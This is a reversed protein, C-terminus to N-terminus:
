EELFSRKRRKAGGRPRVKETIKQAIALAENPEIAVIKTKSAKLIKLDKTIMKRIKESGFGIAGTFILIDCGGLIAYYAGIYKQIKYCYIDLALQATKDKKEVRKLVDRMDVEGCIAKVGSEYNLIKEAKKGLQLVIVPDIDGSRTMMMAGELPTYGMSTDLPKGNKIATISTGGGLHCSIIKKNPYQNSVYEHSIGHFGFKKFDGPVPYLSAKEPLDEYFGTDFVAIMKTRPFRRSTIKIGLLNFPNHLPALKIGKLKRLVTRTIVVPKRFKEGGHVIRHGILNIEEDISLLEKRLIRKFKKEGFFDVQKEKILKLSKTYIKYKISQSGCNLILIM